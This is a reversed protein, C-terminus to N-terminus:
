DCPFRPAAPHHSLSWNCPSQSVRLPFFRRPAARRTSSCACSVSSIIWPRSANKVNSLTPSFEPCGAFVHNSSFFHVLSKLMNLQLLCSAELTAKMFLQVQEFIIKDVINNSFISCPSYESSNEVFIIHM